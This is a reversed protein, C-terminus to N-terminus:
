GGHSHSCYKKGTKGFSIKSLVTMAILAWIINLTLPVWAQYFFSNIILCLSGIVNGVQNAVSRVRWRRTAVMAYSALVIVFGFWGIADNFNM